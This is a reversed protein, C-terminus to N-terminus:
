TELIQRVIKATGVLAAKQFIEITSKVDLKKLWDKLRKLTVGLAGIVVPVIVVQSLNQIKKLEQRLESYNYVKEQENLVIRKYRPVAIDALGCKRKTKYLVFIGPRRHQIVHDTHINFDWLIQVRDNEVVSAPKHSYWKVEGVLGFKQCLELHVIRAVNDHRQKYEKQTLKKCETILHTISENRKEGMRCKESVEQDDINKKIWITRLAQERAAFILGETEKKLYGKRIWGWTEDSRVKETERVFKGHLQKEKWQKHREEKKTKKAKSVSGEYEPLIRESKSLRM